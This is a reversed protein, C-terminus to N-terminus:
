SSSGFSRPDIERVQDPSPPTITVAVGFDWLETVNWIWSDPASTANSPHAAVAIRRARGSSDLWVEAPIERLRRLPGEPATVGAPLREDARWLDLTLRCRVTDTERVPEHAVEVADDNAGFLADLPWQPDIHRRAGDGTEGLWEIWQDDVCSFERAGDHITRHRETALRVSIYMDPNMDPLGAIKDAMGETIMGEAVPSGFLDARNQAFDVVGEFRMGGPQPIPSGESSASFLRATGAEVTRDAAEQAALTVAADGTM